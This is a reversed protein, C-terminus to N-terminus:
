TPSLPSPGAQALSPGTADPGLSVREGGARERTGQGRRRGEPWRVHVDDRDADQDSGRLWRKQREFSRTTKQRSTTVAFREDVHTGLHRAQVSARTSHGAVHGVAEDTATGRHTHTARLLLTSGERGDTVSSLAPRTKWAGRPARETPLNGLKLEKLPFYKLKGNLATM